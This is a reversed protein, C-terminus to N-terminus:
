RHCKLQQHEPQKQSSGMRNDNVEVPLSGDNGNESDYRCEDVGNGARM